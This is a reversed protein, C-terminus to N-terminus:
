YSSLLYALIAVLILLGVVTLTSPRKPRPPAHHIPRRPRPRERPAAAAPEPMAPEPPTAPEPVPTAAAPESRPVIVQEMKRTRNAPKTGMTEDLPEFMAAVDGFKITSGPSLPAEGTLQEGEVFTGNTSGLDTLIWIADRRQLKAHTASVSPDAIVLDNYDARGINV